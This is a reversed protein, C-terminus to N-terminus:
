TLARVVFESVRDAAQDPDHRRLAVPIRESAIVAFVMPLTAELDLDARFDGDAAGDSIIERMIQHLPELREALFVHAKPSLTDSDLFGSDSGGGRQEPFQHMQRRILWRLRARADSLVATEARVEGVFADVARSMFAMLLSEKDSAYNYVTNRAMGARGAVEALTLDAYGREAMLEGFADLLATLMLERHEAM